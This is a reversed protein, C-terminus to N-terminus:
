KSYYQRSASRCQALAYEMVYDCKFNPKLSRFLNLSGLTVSCHGFSSCSKQLVIDGVCELVPSGIIEAVDAWSWLDRFASIKIVCQVINAHTFKVRNLRNDPAQMFIQIFILM